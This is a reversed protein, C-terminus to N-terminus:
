RQSGFLLQDDFHILIGLCQDRPCFLDYRCFPPIPFCIKLSRFSGVIPLLEMLKMKGEEEEEEGESEEEESSEEGLIEKKIEDYMKENSEYDPDVHFIDTKCFIIVNRVACLRRRDRNGLGLEPDHEDNLSLEHSIQDASEILDLEPLVPPFSEFKNRRVAFLNEIM